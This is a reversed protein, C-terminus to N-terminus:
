RVNWTGGRANPADAIVVPPGGSVEIRKLKNGSFLGISRSDPSWFPYQAGETGPLESATLSDLPRIWLKAMGTSSAVFAIAQGDPSIASGGGFKQCLSLLQGGALAASGVVQRRIRQLPIQRVLPQVFDLPIALYKSGTRSWWSRGRATTLAM